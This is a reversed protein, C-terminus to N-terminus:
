MGDKGQKGFTLADLDMPAPGNLALAAQKARLHNLVEARVLAYTTFRTANLMLHERRKQPVLRTSTVSKEISEM